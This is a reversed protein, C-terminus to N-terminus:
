KGIRLIRRQKDTLGDGMGNQADELAAERRNQNYKSTDYWGFGETGTAQMEGLKIMQKELERKSYEEGWEVQKQKFQVRRATEGPQSDAVCAAYREKNYAFDIFIGDRYLAIMDPNDRDIKVKFKEGLNDNAFMFDGVNDSDPVIFHHEEGKVDIVIGNTGYPYPLRQEVMFMSIRDFYNLEARQEHQITTYREIKSQGVFRGFSDRKEGRANWKAVADHLMEIVGNRDPLAEPNKRLWALLEPNAQSNLSKVDINGGKFNSYHRLVRQQFHGIISEVYKSRGKYPECPFHVRSMNSMLNKVAVSVNASSNDYQLQYPKYKYTDVANRLAETVMGSTEAFAISIGIIASTCADTIFYVYLDSKIKGDVGVYYLQMSTGDISWLADPFSPTKRNILSQIENDAAHKGHRAYFWVKKIKPTNLYSKVTSTTIQPKANALAWDNYMMAVDEWSYKVPESALKVLKAHMVTDTKERNVNGVGGHILSTIGNNKYEVANKVLTRVNTILTKKFRILAPSSTQENLCRKFVESRFDNVSKFGLKRAKKVDYENILRLWAAARALQHVESPTYLKTETLYKIEEPNSSVLLSVQDALNEFVATAKEVQEQKLYIEPELKNCHVAKILVQYKEKLSHYHIYVQKGQKHHEWCYVEGKRQGALARNIYSASIGCAVLEDRTTCLINDNYTPM